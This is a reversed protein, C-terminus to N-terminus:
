RGTQRARPGEYTDSGLSSSLARAQLPTARWDVKAETAAAESSICFENQEAPFNIYFFTLNNKRISVPPTM